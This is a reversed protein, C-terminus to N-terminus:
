SKHVLVSVPAHRVVREVSGLLARRLGRHGHSGMALLDFSGEELHSLITRSPEGEPLALSLSIGPRRYSELLTSARQEIRARVDDALEDPGLYSSQLVHVLEITAGPAALQIALSLAHKSAHSFDSAVLLRRPPEPATARKAVLVPCGALRTVREAVSGLMFRDVGTRGHTGVVLMDAGRTRAQEVLVDDAFGSGLHHEVTLGRARSHAALDRLRRRADALLKELYRKWAENSRDALEYMGLGEETVGIAHVLVMRAGSRHALSEAQALAVECEPSLDVGVVITDLKM